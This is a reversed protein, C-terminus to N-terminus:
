AVLSISHGTQRIIPAAEALGATKASARSAAANASVGIGQQAGPDGQRNHQMPQDQSAGGSQSDPSALMVTEVGAHHDILYSHLGAMHAGLAAAAAASGPVVSAHVGGSGIDARVGIWGLAPDEFGAEASHAGVHIWSLNHASASDLASFTERPADAMASGAAGVTQLNTSHIPTSGERGLLTSEAASPIPQVGAAQPSLAAETSSALHAPRLALPEAGRKGTAASSREALSKVAAAAPNADDDVLPPGDQVVDNGQGPSSDNVSHAAGPGPQSDASAIAPRAPAAPGGPQPGPHLAGSIAAADVHEPASLPHTLSVAEHTAAPRTAPKGGALALAVPVAIPVAVPQLPGGAATSLKLLPGSSHAAHSDTRGSRHAARTPSSDRLAPDVAEPAPLASPQAGPRPTQSFVAFLLSNRLGPIATDAPAGPKSRYVASESTPESAPTVPNGARDDAAAAQVATWSSRSLAALESQWHTHFGAANGTVGSPAPGGSGQRQAPAGAAPLHVASAIPARPEIEIGAAPM